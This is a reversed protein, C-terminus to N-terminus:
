NNEHGVPQVPEVAQDFFVEVFEQWADVIKQSADLEELKQSFWLCEDLARQMQVSLVLNVNVQSPMM